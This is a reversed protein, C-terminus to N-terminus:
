RNIRHHAKYALSAQKGRSIDQSSQLMGKKENSGLAIIEKDAVLVNRIFGAVHEAEELAPPTEFFAYVLKSRETEVKSVIEWRQQRANLLMKETLAEILDLQAYRDNMNLLEAKVSM